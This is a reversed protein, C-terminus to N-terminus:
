YNGNCFLLVFKKARNNLEFCREKLYACESYKLDVLIVKSNEKSSDLNMRYYREFFAVLEWNSSLEKPCVGLTESPFIIPQSLLDTYFDPVRKFRKGNLVTCFLLSLGLLMGACALIFKHFKALLINLTIPVEKLLSAICISYLPFSQFVYWIRQKPSFFAPFSASISILLISWFFPSKHIAIKKWPRLILVILISFFVPVVLEGLFRWLLYFHRINENKGSLSNIIQTYFYQKLYFFADKSLLLYGLFCVTVFFIASYSYVYYKRINFTNKNTCGIIIPAALPFLGTPGKILFASLIAFAIIISVIFSPHFLNKYLLLIAFTTFVTMTNELINNSYAWSVSPISAFLLVSFWSSKNDHFLSWIKIVIVATIMGCTTGWLYEVSRNDGFIKYALSQLVFHLPPHEYFPNLFFTNYFPHWFDGIKLYLNRSISAYILGDFFMDFNYIRYICLFLFFSLCLIINEKGDFFINKSFNPFHFKMKKTNIDPELIKKFNNYFLIM